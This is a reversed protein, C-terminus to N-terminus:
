LIADCLRKVNACMAIEDMLADVCNEDVFRALLGPHTANLYKVYRLYNEERETVYQALIEETIGDEIDQFSPGNAVFRNYRIRAKNVLGHKKALTRAENENEFVQMMIESRVMREM